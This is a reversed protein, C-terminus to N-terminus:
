APHGNDLAVCFGDPKELLEANVIGCNPAVAGVRDVSGFVGTIAFHNFRKPLFLGFKSSENTM